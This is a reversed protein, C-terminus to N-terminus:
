VCRRWTRAGTSTVSVSLCLQAAFLSSNQAFHVVVWDIPCTGLAVGDPASTIRARYIFNNISRTLGGEHTLGIFVNAPWYSSSPCIFKCSFLRNLHFLFYPLVRQGANCTNYKSYFHDVQKRQFAFCIIVDPFFFALKGSYVIYEAAM